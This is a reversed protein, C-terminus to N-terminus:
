FNGEMWRQKKSMYRQRRVFAYIFVLLIPIAVNGYKLMERTSDEVTDLPRNTIGKTRLDILGTDDSLWDIANSAFNVNDESIQQPPNGNIIFQGNSVLILKSEQNGVLAGELAVALTQTGERFDNENWRKQIDVGSPTPALGSMESTLMLPNYRITSDNGTYNIASVFPLMITELGNTTAHEPFDNIMPFYPFKLQSRYTFVGNNQQVSVSGSQADVVFQSGLNVQKNRLWGELGIDNGKSLYGQQLNGNMNSYAIFVAGGNSMFDDIRSFEVASITDSPNIIALTRVYSPVETKESLDITEIEYLVSLQQALQSVEQLSPEGHGQLLAVKPKDTVSLKKISTTLGYEMDVGPQVVPIIEKQDGMMLVAGMYAKLQQVQDKESVNIIIPQIGHQQAEAELTEDENPSIFEYVINGGSRNEYELLLDEFDQRNSILQTPLDESFYAKVTIVDDLNTLIDDTAKSLTYRQDETFDLRFYLKSSIMNVVVLILAFVMLRIIVTNRKM